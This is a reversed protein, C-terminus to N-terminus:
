VANNKKRWYERITNKWQTGGKLYLATNILMRDEPSYQNQAEVSQIILDYFRERFQHGEKKALAQIDALLKETTVPQVNKEAPTEDTEEADQIEATEVKDSLRSPPVLTAAQQKLFDNLDKLTNKKKSM